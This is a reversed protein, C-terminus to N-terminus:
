NGMERLSLLSSTTRPYTFTKVSIFLERELVSELCEGM